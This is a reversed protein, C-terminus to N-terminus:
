GRDLRCRGTLMEMEPEYRDGSPCPHCYIAASRREVVAGAHAFAAERGISGPGDDGGDHAARPVLIHHHTHTLLVGVHAILGLALSTDRGQLVGNFVTSDGVPVIHLLDPVVGEVIFQTHGRPLVRHQEGLGRFGQVLRSVKLVGAVYTAMWATNDRYTEPGVVPM